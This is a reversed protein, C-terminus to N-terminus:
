GHRARRWQGKHKHHGTLILWVQLLGVAWEGVEIALQGAEDSPFRSEHLLCQAENRARRQQEMLQAAERAEAGRGLYVKKVAEGVRVSRYYYGTAAGKRRREWAM